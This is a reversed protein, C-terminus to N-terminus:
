VSEANGSLLAKGTKSRALKEALYVATKELIEEKNKELFGEILRKSYDSLPSDKDAHRGYYHAEFLKDRVQQEINAVIQKEASEEIKKVIANDDIGIAFQVIHEM